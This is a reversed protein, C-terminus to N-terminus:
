KHFSRCSMPRCTTVFDELPQSQRDVLRINLTVKGALAEALAWEVDYLAYRQERTSDSAVVLCDFGWSEEKVFVAEMSEIKAIEQVLRETLRARTWKEEAQAVLDPKETM